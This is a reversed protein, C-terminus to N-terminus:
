VEPRLAEFQQTLTEASATLRQQALLDFFQEVNRRNTGRDYIENGISESRINAIGDAIRITVEQKRKLMKKSTHAILGSESIYRIDWELANVVDVSLAIFQEPSLGDLAIDMTSNPTLGFSM